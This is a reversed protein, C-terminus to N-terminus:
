LVFPVKKSNKRPKDRAQRPLIITKLMLVSLLYRKRVKDAHDRVGDVLAQQKEQWSQFGLREEYM